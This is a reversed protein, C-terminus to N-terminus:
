SSLASHGAGKGFILVALSDGKADIIGIPTNVCYVYPSVAYYKEAMPDIANWAASRDYIFAGLYYYGTGSTGAAGAKTGDALYSYDM